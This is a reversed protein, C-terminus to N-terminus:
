GPKMNFRLAASLVRARGQECDLAGKGVMKRGRWKGWFGFDMTRSPRDINMFDAVRLPLGGYDAIAAATARRRNRLAPLVPTGDRDGVNLWEFRGDTALADLVRDEKGTRLVAFFTRVAHKSGKKGQGCDLPGDASAARASPRESAQTSSEGSCGSAVGAILVLALALLRKM